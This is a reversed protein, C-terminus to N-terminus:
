ACKWGNVLEMEVKLFYVILSPYRLIEPVGLIWETLLCKHRVCNLTPQPSVSMCLIVYWLLLHFLLTRMTDFNSKIKFTKNPKYYYTMCLSLVLWDSYKSGPLFFHWLDIQAGLEDKGLFCYWLYHSSLKMLRLPPSPQITANKKIIISLLHNQVKTWQWLVRGASVLNSIM